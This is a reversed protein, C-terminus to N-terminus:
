SVKSAGLYGQGPATGLVDAWKRGKPPKFDSMTDGIRYLINHAVESGLGLGEWRRKVRGCTEVFSSRKCCEECLGLQRDECVAALVNQQRWRWLHEDRLTLLVKHPLLM